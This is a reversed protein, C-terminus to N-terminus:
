TWSCFSAGFSWPKQQIQPVHIWVKFSIRTCLWTTGKRGSHKISYRWRLMKHDLAPHLEWYWQHLYSIINARLCHRSSSRKLDTLPLLSRHCGDVVASQKRNSLFSEVWKVIKPHIGCLKLKRLTYKNTIWKTSHWLGFIYRLNNM